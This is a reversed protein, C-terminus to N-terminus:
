LGLFYYPDLKEGKRIVEIHLHNGTSMGTSGVYAILDGKKVKQGKVVCLESAHGYLTKFQGDHEIVVHYGYGDDYEAEIVTGNQVAYIETGYASAIDLGKHNRDDGWYASINQGNVRQLPWIADLQNIWSAKIYNGRNGVILIEDVPERAIEDGVYITKLEKGNVMIIQTVSYKLGKVGRSFVKTKGFSLSDDRRKVTAYKIEKEEKVTKVSQVDLSEILTQFDSFSTFDSKLFYGQTCEVPAIFSSVYDKDEIYSELYNEIYKEANDEEKLYATTKGNVSVRVGKKILDTNLVLNDAVSSPSALSNENTIVMRFEVSHAYDEFSADEMMQNVLAVAEEYEAKDKIQGIVEGNYELAYAFTVGSYVSTTFIGIVVLLAFVIIKSKNLIRGANAFLEKFQIKLM